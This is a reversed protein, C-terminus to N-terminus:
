EEDGKWTLEVEDGNIVSEATVMAFIIMPVYEGKKLADESGFGLTVNALGANVEKMQNALGEFMKIIEPWAKVAESAKLKELIEKNILSKTGM